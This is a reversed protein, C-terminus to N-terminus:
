TAEFSLIESAALNTGTSTKTCSTERKGKVCVADSGSNNLEAIAPAVVRSLM